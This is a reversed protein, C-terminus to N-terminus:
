DTTVAAADDVPDGTLEGIEFVEAVGDGVHQEVVLPAPVHAFGRQLAGGRERPIRRGEPDDLLEVTLHQQVALALRGAVLGGAISSREARSGRHGDVFSVNTTTSVAATTTGSNTPRIARPRM